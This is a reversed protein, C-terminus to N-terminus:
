VSCFTSIVRQNQHPRQPEPVRVGCSRFIDVPDAERLRRVALAGAFACTAATLLYVTAMQQVTMQILLLTASRAIQCVIWSLVVGPPFGLISLILSEQLVVWSLYRDPYGIAKITAYEPVHVSVDSYLIQYVIVAGVFLGVIVSTGFLFGV